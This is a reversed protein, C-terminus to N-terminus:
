GHVWDRISNRDVTSCHRQMTCLSPTSPQLRNESLQMGVSIINNSNSLNIAHRDPVFGVHEDDGGTRTECLTCNNNNNNNDNNVIRSQHLTANKRRLSTIVYIYLSGEDIPNGRGGSGHWQWDNTISRFYRIEGTKTIDSRLRRRRWLRYQIIRAHHICWLIIYLLVTHVCYMVYICTTCMYLLPPRM